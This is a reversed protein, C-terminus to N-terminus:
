CMEESIVAQISISDVVRELQIVLGQLKLPDYWCQGRKHLLRHLHPQHYKPHDHSDHHQGANVEDDRTDSLAFLSDAGSVLVKAM